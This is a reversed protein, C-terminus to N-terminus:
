DEPHGRNEARDALGSGNVVVYALVSLVPVFLFLVVWTAKTAGPMSTNQILDGTIMVLAGLFGFAVLATCALAMAEGFSM